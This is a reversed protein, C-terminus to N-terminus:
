YLLQGAATYYRGNIELLLQGNCLYKRARSAGSGTAFSESTPISQGDNPYPTTQIKWIYKTSGDANAIRLKAPRESTVAVAIRYCEGKEAFTWTTLDTWAKASDDYYQLKCKRDASGASAYVIMSDCSAVAPCTIMGGNTNKDMSIRNTFREGTAACTVSGTQLGAASLVFGNITSSPYAGSTYASTAIEGWTGDDLQTEIREIVAEQPQPQEMDAYRTWEGSAPTYNSWKGASYTNGSWTVSGGSQTLTVIRNNKHETDNYVINNEITTNVPPLTCESSSHFNVCMAEICNVFINGRVTADKVQFYEHLASNEKGRVICIGARYNNGALSEFYNNCVTHGEGIIRVGGSASKHNGYFRNNEVVCRNGHRLTLSGSCNLFTNTRYINGCSKNSITEIEGDCEEFLNNEVRCCADQMSSSSDGVRIIEQGNLEKGQEDVNPTRRYFHNNDIQHSPVVGSELWVVLLTGTNTKNEFYCHDVRNETGRLSVWKTDKTADSPNYSVIRCNTLRCHSSSNHFQIIHGSNGTYSGTFTLGEVEIYNGQITLTSTGAFSTQGAGQAKLVIPADATGSGKITLTQNSYSGSAFLLTDGPQWTPQLASASSVPMTRAVGQGAASLLLVLLLIYNHVLSRM